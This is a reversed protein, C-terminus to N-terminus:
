DAMAEAIIQPVASEWGLPMIHVGSIGPKKRLNRIIEVAIRIGEDGANAGAEEMRRMIRDPIIIGPIREHLYRATKLTRLPSVGVLIHVKDLL